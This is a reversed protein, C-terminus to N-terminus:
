VRAPRDRQMSLSLGSPWPRPRRATFCCSGVAADVVATHLCAAPPRVALPRTRSYRGIFPSEAEHRHHCQFIYNTVKSVTCDAAAVRYAQRLHRAQQPGPDAHSLDCSLRRDRSAPALHDCHRTALVRDDTCENLGLRTFQALGCVRSRGRRSASQHM